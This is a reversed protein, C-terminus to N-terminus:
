KTFRNIKNDSFLDYNGYYTSLTTTKPHDYVKIKWRGKQVSQM